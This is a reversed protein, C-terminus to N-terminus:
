FKHSVEVTWIRGWINHNNTDVANTGSLVIPPAKDTLNQIGLAVRTGNLWKSDEGFQYGLNADFTTWSPIRTDPLKTGAVTITANNLYSGVYNAAVSANFGDKRWAVAARGRSSVQFGFTDLADFLPGTPTLSKKLSLIKTFAGDFSFTGAQTELKYNLNFDLGAQKVNGLNQTGGNVIGTLTCDNITSPTFVANKDNLFPLYAPNYTAYNGNVCTSPQPAAIFYDSYLARNAPSSLVLANTATQNPLGEIRNKYNVNYYTVGFKLNRAFEPNLDLGLSWVTASEPKLGPTNGTRNLVASQGTSTLTIPVLPDNAGNAIYVRNTQGVTAPNNEILTPARFSTGWSGRLKVGGTPQWTLGFKPNATTGFDSYKVWRLAASLDLKDFGTMRNSAGVLPVYAEAYLSQVTRNGTTNRSVQWANQLNLKNQALLRFDYTTYEGGLAVKM